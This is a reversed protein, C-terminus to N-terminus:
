KNSYHRYSSNCVTSYIEKCLLTISPMSPTGFPKSSLEFIDIGFNETQGLPNINEQLFVFQNNSITIGIQPVVIEGDHTLSGWTESPM